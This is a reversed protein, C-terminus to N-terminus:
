LRFIKSSITSVKATLAQLMVDRKVTDWKSQDFGNVSRGIRKMVAPSTTIMIAAASKKDCFYLAKYRM